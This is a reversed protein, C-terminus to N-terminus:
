IIAQAGLEAPDTITITRGTQVILGDAALGALVRSFTEPTMGLRSAIKAKAAPLEIVGGDGRNVRDLPADVPPHNVYDGLMGDVRTDPELDALKGLLFGVTRQKATNLTFMEIDRVRNHLRLSMSALMARAFHPDRSLLTNVTAAPVEVLHTKVLARSDVPFPRQLFMVAEGLSQGPGIIELVKTEGESNSLGLEMLGSEVGYFCRSATGRTFLHEGRAVEIRRCDQAVRQLLAQDLSSFMAMKALVAVIRDLRTPSEPTPSEPTPVAIPKEPVRGVNVM